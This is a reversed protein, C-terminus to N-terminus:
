VKRVFTLFATHGQMQSKPRVKRGDVHWERELIEITKTIIFDYREIERAFRSVQTITPLYTMLFAGKKLAKDAHPLVTWPEPLDLTILDLNSEDIGEYIDKHKVKVNSVELFELNKKALEVSSENVEYTTVEKAIRGIAAALLGCGTGADVVKYSSDISTYYLIIAIDKPLLTQPARKIKPTIDIFRPQFAFFNSGSHSKVKGKNSKLDTESIVGFNTHLDGSKWYFLKDKRGIIKKIKEM